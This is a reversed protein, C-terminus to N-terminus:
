YDNEPFNGLPSATASIGLRDWLADTINIAANPNALVRAETTNDTTISFSSYGAFKGPRLVAAVVDFVVLRVDVDTEDLTRGEDAFRRRIQSSASMLLDDALTDEVGVLQRFRAVFDAKSMIPTAFGAM